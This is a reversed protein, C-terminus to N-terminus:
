PLILITMHEQGDELTAGSNSYPEGGTRRDRRVDVIEICEGEDTGVPEEATDQAQAPIVAKRRNFIKLKPLRIHGCEM